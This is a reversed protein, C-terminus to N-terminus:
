RGSRWTTRGSGCSLRTRARRVARCSPSIMNVPAAFKVREDVAFALFTQTGGGSAGTMGIKNRDVEPFSELFDLVRISDWL